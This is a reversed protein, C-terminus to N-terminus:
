DTLEFFQRTAAGKVKRKRISDLHSRRGQNLNGSWVCVPSTPRLIL